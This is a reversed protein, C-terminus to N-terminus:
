REVYMWDVDPLRVLGDLDARDKPGNAILKLVILDEITGICASQPVAIARGILTRQLETKAAQVELVVTGDASAFRVFDPGSPLTTGHEGAVAYGEGALLDKLRQLSAPDIAATIDVDATFRPELWANVAHAGIVAYPIGARDFIRAVESLPDATTTM